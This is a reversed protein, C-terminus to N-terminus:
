HQNGKEQVKYGKKVVANYDGDIANDKGEKKPKEKEAMDESDVVELELTWRRTRTWPM